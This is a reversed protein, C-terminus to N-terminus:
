FICMGYPLSIKNSQDAFTMREDPYGDNDHDILRSIRNARPESVLIDGTPTYLLFRPMILDTMFTKVTFGSPVSIYPNSPVAIINADKEASPTAFPRPLNAATIHIPKPVFTVNTGHIQYDCIFNLAISFLLIPHRILLFIQTSM